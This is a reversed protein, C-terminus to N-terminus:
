CPGEIYIWLPMRVDGMGLLVDSNWPCHTVLESYERLSDQYRHAWSLRKAKEFKAETDLDCTRQLEGNELHPHVKLDLEESPLDGSLRVDSAQTSFTLSGLAIAAYFFPGTITGIIIWAHLSM